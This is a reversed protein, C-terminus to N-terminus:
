DSICTQQFATGSRNQLIVAALIDTVDKGSFAARGALIEFVRL